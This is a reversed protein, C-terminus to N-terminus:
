RSRKRSHAFFTSVLVFVAFSSPEPVGTVNLSVNDFATQTGESNLYIALTQGVFPSGSSDFTLSILQFFGEPGVGSSSALVNSGARLEISYQNAFGIPHGVYAELSYTSDPLLPVNLGQAVWSPGGFQANPAFGVQNGDPAPTSWFNSGNINWTGGGNTGVVWGEVSNIAGGNQLVTNEFSPNIIPIVDAPCLASLLASITTAYITQLIISRM